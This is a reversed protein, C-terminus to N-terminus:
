GHVARFFQAAAWEKFWDGIQAALADVDADTAEVTRAIAEGLPLGDVLARLLEYQV